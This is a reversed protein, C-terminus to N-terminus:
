TMRIDVGGTRPTYKMLPERCLLIYIGPLTLIVKVDVGLRGSVDRQLVEAPPRRALGRGAGAM